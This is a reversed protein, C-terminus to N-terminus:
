MCVNMLGCLTYFRTKVKVQHNFDSLNANKCDASGVEIFDLFLRVPCHIIHQPKQFDFLTFKEKGIPRDYHLVLFITVPPVNNKNYKSNCHM